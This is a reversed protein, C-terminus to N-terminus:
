LTATHRTVSVSKFMLLVNQAAFCGDGDTVFCMMDFRSIYNEDGFARDVRIFIYTIFRKFEQANNGVLFVLDRDHFFCTSTPASRSGGRREYRNSRSWEQSARISRRLRPWRIWWSSIATM